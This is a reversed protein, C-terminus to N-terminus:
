RLSELITVIETQNPTSGILYGLAIGSIGNSTRKFAAIWQLGGNGFYSEGKFLQFNGEQGAYSYQLQGGYSSVHQQILQVAQEPNQINGFDYIEIYTDRGPNSLNGSLQSMTGQNKPQMIWSAPYNFSVNSQYVRYGAPVTANNNPANTETYVVQQQNPRSFDQEATEFSKAIEDIKGRLYSDDKLEMAVAGKRISERIDILQFREDGMQAYQMFEQLEEMGKKFAEETTSRGGKMGEGGIGTAELAYFNGNMRFGPYAHGPILFIIPDLGANMLISAYLVSLEICLGTKGTVVERPLRLSQVISQVDDMATPVGSTGSYVMHSKYTAEYIGALFRIAEEESNSVSADEGKLIKEQIQQTFYKIVPDEPTVFCSLIDANDVIEAPSIIEDSPIHTYVFENRGKIEIPFSETQEEVNLGEIKINVREKSATRKEVIDEKFKPFCNVIVSQGPLLVAVKKLETEDIYGPVDYSVKLNKVISKSNNTLLMKFLGYKGELADENAYVKYAAPMIVTNPEIKVELEIEEFLASLSQNFAMLVGAIILIAAITFHKLESKIKSSM